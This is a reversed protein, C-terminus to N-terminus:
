PSRLELRLSHAVLRDFGLALVAWARLRLGEGHRDRLAGAYHRLQADAEGLAEAVAPLELLEARAAKRVEDGTMGIEGLPLRKFEFLLDTLISDRSDPRLLLCLDAYGRELEPESLMVYNIENWLLCVFVTKVMLEDAGQADRNSFTPFVTTEVFDLLPEIVGDTLLPGKAEAAADRSKGLPLLFQLIGDVYLKRVVLNPPSLLLERIKSRGDLTLMGFYYLYSGLFTADQSSRDLMTRLSFRKELREIGLPQGSRILDIVSEQGSAVRGLYELKGEDAALNNDLMEGPYTGERQLHSLFYLSLTPNYIAATANEAFRYGDYWVRMMEHAEAVTWSDETRSKIRELLSRLEDGTFGCLANLDAELYVDEAMNLGSTVDSMVIPSVGTVFLRELGKGAMVGKVWKFLYKFPGDTHVLDDYTDPDSAMVENAFNDYEDVLLYLQYPTQRIVALIGDLTHLADAEITVPEPLHVRYDSVFSKLARNLYDHIENGIRDVRSSVDRNVGRPPPEPNILSFDLSLVFYRHALPTPDRGVALDGFLREHEGAYRLDYYCALTRLWLSKGFRRPRLFLLAEGREEVARVYGTRDVYEYGATRLHYFDAIGYPLKM